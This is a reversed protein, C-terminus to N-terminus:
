ALVVLGLMLSLKQRQRSGTAERHHFKYGLKKVM